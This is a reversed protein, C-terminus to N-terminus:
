KKGGQATTQALKDTDKDKSYTITVTGNGNDRVEKGSDQPKSM